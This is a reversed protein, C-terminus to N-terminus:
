VVSKRDSTKSASETPRARNTTSSRNGGASRSAQYDFRIRSNDVLILLDTWAHSVAQNGLDAAKWSFKVLWHHAQTGNASWFSLGKAAHADRMGAAQAEIAAHGKSVSADSILM